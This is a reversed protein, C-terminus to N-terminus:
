SKNAREAEAEIRHGHALLAAQLRSRVGLKALVRGGHTHVTEESVFLRKAIERDGLGQAILQLVQAEARTLGHRTRLEEIRRPSEPEELTVLIFTKESGRALQLEARLPGTALALELDPQPPLGNADRRLLAALRRVALSLAEPVGKEGRSKLELLQEARESAWLLAGRADFALRPPADFDVLCDALSRPPVLGQSSRSALASLAPILRILTKLEGPSFDPQWDARALLMGVMGPAHMKGESLRLHIFNEFDYHQACYTHAPHLAFEKWEPLSPAHLFRPNLRRLLPHLPDQAYYHKAYYEHCEALSGALALPRGQEDCRFLLATSTDFLRELSPLIQGGFEEFSVAEYASRVVDILLGERAASSLMPPKM